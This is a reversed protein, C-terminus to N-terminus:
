RKESGPISDQYYIYIYIYIYIAGLIKQVWEV